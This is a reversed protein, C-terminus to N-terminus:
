QRLMEETKKYKKSKIQFFTNVKKGDKFGM